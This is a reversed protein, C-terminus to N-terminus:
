ESGPPAIRMQGGARRLKEKQVIKGQQDLVVAYSNLDDPDLSVFIGKMGTPTKEARFLVGTKCGATCRFSSFLQVNQISKDLVLWGSNGSQVTGVIEGNQAKWNANGLTHWGSLNNAKVQVDPKFTPGVGGDARACRRAVGAVHLEAM